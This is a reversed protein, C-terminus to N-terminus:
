KQIEWIPKKIRKIVLECECAGACHQDPGIAYNYDVDNDRYSVIRYSNPELALEVTSLLTSPTFFIKHDGNFRSPLSRRKEYLYMHPVTLILYGGIKLPRFWEKVTKIPDTVHELCHSSFVFDLCFDNYPITFGDYGPTGLDLGVANDVVPINDKCEGVYGIDVGLGHMYREYFGAYKRSADSKLVEPGVKRVADKAFHDPL